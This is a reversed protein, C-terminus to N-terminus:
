VNYIVQNSVQLHEWLHHTEWAKEQATCTRLTERKTLRFPFSHLLPSHKHEPPKVPFSVPATKFYNPQKKWWSSQKKNNNNNKTTKKLHQHHHVILYCIYSYIFIKLLSTAISSLMFLMLSVTFAFENVDKL